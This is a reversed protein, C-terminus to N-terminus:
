VTNYQFLQCIIFALYVNPFLVLCLLVENKRVTFVHVGGIIRVTKLGQRNGIANYTLHIQSFFSTNIIEYNEGVKQFVVKKEVLM